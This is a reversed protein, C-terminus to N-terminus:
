IAEVQQLLDEVPMMWANALDVIEQYTIGEIQSHSIEDASSSGYWGDIFKDKVRFRVEHFKNEM